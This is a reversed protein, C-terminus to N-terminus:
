FLNKLLSHEEVLSETQRDTPRYPVWRLQTSDIIDTLFQTSVIGRGGRGERNSFTITTRQLFCPRDDDM